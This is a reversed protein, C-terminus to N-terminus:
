EKIFKQSVAAGDVVLNVMYVGKQLHAVNLEAKNTGPATAAVQQGLMNYVNMSDISGTCNLTLVDKVPNPFMNIVIAANDKIGNTEDDIDNDGFIINDFFMVGDDEREAFDMFIVIQNYVNGPPMAPHDIIDTFDFTLEEWQSIMTNSVKKEPRADDNPMVLKIGVDSITKKYVMIKIIASEPTLVWNGMGPGGEWPQTGPQQTECGAWPQGAGRVQFKAVTASPNIGTQDPNAVFELPPNDDNEFVNWAYNAGYGGPEFSMDNQASASAFACLLLASFYIQKM